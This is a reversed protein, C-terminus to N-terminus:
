RDQLKLLLRLIEIYLWVLTVILAVAGYWEMYKPAGGRASQEIMAFDLVLNLAALVIVFLSFGIGFPGGGHIFPITMGCFSLLISVLYVLMIGGTAAMVGRMFKGSVKILGTRYILLMTFLIGATLGVAQIAIGPHRQEVYASIGGLLLGECLAYIPATIPAITPRSLTIIALIFGGVGGVIMWIIISRPEATNLRDWMFGAAVVLLALMIAIKNITGQITMVPEGEVYREYRKFAKANLVPNATRM